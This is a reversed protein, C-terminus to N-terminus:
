INQGGFTPLTLIHPLDLLIESGYTARQGLHGFQYVDTPCIRKYAPQVKIYAQLKM